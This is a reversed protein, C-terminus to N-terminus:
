ALIGRCTLCYSAIASMARDSGLLAGIRELMARPAVPAGCKKCRVESDQYLGHRGQALRQLDTVREVRV